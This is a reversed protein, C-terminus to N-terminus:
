ENIVVVFKDFFKM